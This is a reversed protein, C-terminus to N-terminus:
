SVFSFLISIIRFIYSIVIQWFSNTIEVEFVDSCGNYEVVIEQTGLISTDLDSVNFLSIDSIIQKSGNSYVAEIALGSLDLGNESMYTYSTKEPASIIRISQLVIPEDAENNKLSDSLEELSVAYYKGNAIIYFMNGSIFSTEANEFDFAYIESINNKIVCVTDEIDTNVGITYDEYICDNDMSINMYNKHGSALNVTSITEYGDNSFYVVGDKNEGYFMARQYQNHNIISYRIGNENHESLVKKVKGDTMNLTYVNFDKLTGYYESDEWYVIGVCIVLIDLETELFAEIFGEEIFSIDNIVHYNEFDSTCCLIHFDNGAGEEPTSESAIAALTNNSTKYEVKTVHEETHYWRVPFEPTKCLEWDKM